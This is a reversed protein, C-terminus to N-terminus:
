RAPARESHHHGAARRNGSRSIQVSPVSVPAQDRVEEEAAVAGTTMTDHGATMSNDRVTLM